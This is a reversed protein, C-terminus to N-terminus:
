ELLAEDGGELKLLINLGAPAEQRDSYGGNSTQRLQFIASQAKNKDSFMARTLWGERRLKAKRLVEAYPTWMGDENSELREYQDTPLGVFLIMNARDPFM